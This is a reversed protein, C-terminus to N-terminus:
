SMIGAAMKFLYRIQHALRPCQEPNEFVIRRTHTHIFLYNTFVCSVTECAIKRSAGTTVAVIWISFKCVNRVDWIPVQHQQNQQSEFIYWCNSLLKLILYCM